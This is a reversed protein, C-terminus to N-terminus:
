ASPRRKHRVVARAHPLTRRSTSEIASPPGGGCNRAGVEQHEPTIPKMRPGFSQSGVQTVRAAIVALGFLWRPVVSWGARKSRRQPARESAPKSGRTRRESLWVMNPNTTPTTFRSRHRKELM